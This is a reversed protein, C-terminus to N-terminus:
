VSPPHGPPEMSKPHNVDWADLEVCLERAASSANPCKVCPSLCICKTQKPKPTLEYEHSGLSCRSQQMKVEFARDILGKEEVIQLMSVATKPKSVSEMVTPKPLSVTDTSKSTKEKEPMVMMGRLDSRSEIYKWFDCCKKQSREDDDDTPTFDLRIYHAELPEGCDGDGFESIVQIPAPASFTSSALAKEFSSEKSMYTGLSENEVNM